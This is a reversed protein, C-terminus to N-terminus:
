KKNILCCNKYKKESGCLCKDNRRQKTDNVVPNGSHHIGSTVSLTSAVHTMMITKRM